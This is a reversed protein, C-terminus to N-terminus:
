DCGFLDRTFVKAAVDVLENSMRNSVILDSIEKFESLSKIVRSNFFESNSFLPEYVVVVIGKARIRKM